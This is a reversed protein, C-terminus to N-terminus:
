DDLKWLAVKRADVMMQLFLFDEESDININKDMEYAITRSPLLTKEKLLAETRVAYIAGNLAYVKPLLQRPVESSSGEIFPVLLGDKTIKKLKFPHPEEHASVSVVGDVQKNKQLISLVNGIDDPSRLPSTPQLLVIIDAPENLKNIIDLIVDVTKVEDSALKAERLGLSSAGALVALSEYKQSDTSIYTDDVEKTHIAVNIAHEILTKGQIRAINKDPFGKSGSRAPIIAYVKM